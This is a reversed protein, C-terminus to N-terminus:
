ERTKKIALIVLINLLITVPSVIGTIAIGLQPYIKKKSDSISLLNSLCFFVPESSYNDVTMFKPLKWDFGNVQIKLKGHNQLNLFAHYALSGSFSLFPIVQLWAIKLRRVM